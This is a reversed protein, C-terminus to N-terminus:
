NQSNLSYAFQKAWELSEAASHFLGEGHPIHIFGDPAYNRTRTVNDRMSEGQALETLGFFLRRYFSPHGIIFQFRKIDIAQGAHKIPVLFRYNQESQNSFARVITVEVSHGQLELSNVLAIIAEGRNRLEVATVNGLGGIEVALRIVRGIPKAIPEAVQWYEPEGNCYAAIDLQAGCVDNFYRMEDSQQTLEPLTLAPISPASWRGYEAADLAESYEMWGNWEYSMHTVSQEMWYHQNARLTSLLASLELTHTTEAAFMPLAKAATKRKTRRTAM